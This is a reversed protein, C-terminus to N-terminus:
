ILGFLRAALIVRPHKPALKFAAEVDKKAEEKKNMALYANARAILYRFGSPQATVASNAFQFASLQYVSATKKFNTADTQSGNQQATLAQSLSNTAMELMCESLLGQAEIVTLKVLQDDKLPDTSRNNYAQEFREAAKQLEGVLMYCKGAGFCHSVHTPAYGRMAEFINAGKRLKDKDESTLEGGDDDKQFLSLVLDSAQKNAKELDISNRIIESGGLGTVPRDSIWMVGVIGAVVAIGAVLNNSKKKESM